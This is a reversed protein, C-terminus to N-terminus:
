IYKITFMTLLYPLSCADEQFADAQIYAHGRGEGERGGADVKAFDSESGHLNQILSIM